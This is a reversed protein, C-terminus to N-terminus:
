LEICRNTLYNELAVRRHQLQAYDVLGFNVVEKLVKSLATHNHDFDAVGYAVQTLPVDEIDRSCSVLALLCFVYFLKM